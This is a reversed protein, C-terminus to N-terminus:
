RRSYRQPAIPDTLTRTEEFGMPVCAYTVSDSTVKVPVDDDDLECAHLVLGARHAVVDAATTAPLEALIWSPDRLQRTEEDFAVTGSPGTWLSHGAIRLTPEALDIRRFQMHEFRRAVEEPPHEPDLVTSAHVMGLVIWLGVNLVTPVLARAVLRPRTASVRVLAREARGARFPGGGSEEQVVVVETAEALALPAVHAEDPTAARVFLAPTAATRARAVLRSTRVAAVLRDVLVAAGIGGTTALVVIAAHRVPSRLGRTAFVGGVVLAVVLGAGRIETSWRQAIPAAPGTIRARSLPVWSTAALAVPYVLWMFWASQNIDIPEGIVTFFAGAMMRAVVLLVLVVAVLVRLATREIWVAGAAFFAATVATVAIETFFAGLGFRHAGFGAAAAITALTVFVVGVVPGSWTPGHARPLEM